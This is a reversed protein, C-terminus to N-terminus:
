YGSSFWYQGIAGSDGTKRAKFNSLTLQTVIMVSNNNPYWNETTNWGTAIVGNCRNPYAIPFTISKLWSSNTGPNFNGWQFIM